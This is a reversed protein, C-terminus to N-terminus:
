VLCGTWFTGMTMIMSILLLKTEEGKDCTPEGCYNINEFKKWKPQAHTVLIFNNNLLKNFIFLSNSNLYYVNNVSNLLIM